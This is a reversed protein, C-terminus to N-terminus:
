THNRPADITVEEISFTVTLEGDYIDKWETPSLRKTTSPRLWANINFAAEALVPTSYVGLVEEYTGEMLTIDRRVALYLKM